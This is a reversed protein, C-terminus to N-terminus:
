FLRYPLFTSMKTANYWTLNPRPRLAATSSITIFSGGKGRKKFYPIIVDTSMYISKVNVNFVRDFESETVETTPKAMYTWGANNVVVDLGNPSLSEAKALAMEWDHRKTVDCRLFVSGTKTAVQQGLQENLDLIVVKAGEEVFKEVIGAGFGSAGGTVIAVKDRLSM